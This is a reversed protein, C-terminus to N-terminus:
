SCQGLQAKVIVPLSIRTLINDVIQDSVPFDNDHVVFKPTSFVMRLHGPLKKIFENLKLIFKSRDHVVRVAEM